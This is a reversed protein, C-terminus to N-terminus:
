YLPPTAPRDALRGTDWLWWGFNFEQRWKHAEAEDLVDDDKEMAEYCPERCCPCVEFDPLHPWVWECWHCKFCAKM